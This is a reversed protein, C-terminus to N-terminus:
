CIRNYCVVFPTLTGVGVLCIMLRQTKTHEPSENHRPADPFVYSASFAYEHYRQAVLTYRCHTPLYIGLLEIARLSSAYREGRRTGGMSRVIPAAM